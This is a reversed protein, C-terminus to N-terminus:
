NCTDKKALKKLHKQLKKEYEPWQKDTRDNRRTVTRNAFDIVDDEDNEMFDDDKCNMDFVWWMLTKEKLIDQYPINDVCEECFTVTRHETPSWYLSKYWISKKCKICDM